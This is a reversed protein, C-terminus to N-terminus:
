PRLGASIIRLLHEPSSALMSGGPGASPGGASCPGSMLYVLDGVTVDSRVGGAAQARTLLEGGLGLMEEFLQGHGASLDIGARALTDAFDQKAVGLQVMRELFEFFAETPDAAQTLERAHALMQEIREVLIAEVLQEKTPYHRYLTGVGVGARRAIEDVPAGAGQEAFVEEAVERIRARNRVADARRARTGAERRQTADPEATALQSSNRTSL